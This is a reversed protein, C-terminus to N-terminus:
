TKQLEQFIILPMIMHLTFCQQQSHVPLLLKTQRNIGTLPKKSYNKNHTKNMLDRTNQKSLKEM